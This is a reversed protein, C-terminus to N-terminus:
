DDQAREADVLCRAYEQNCDNYCVPRDCARRIEQNCREVCYRLARDCRHKRADVKSQQPVFDANAVGSSASLSVFFALGILLVSAALKHM